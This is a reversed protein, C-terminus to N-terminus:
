RRRNGQLCLLRQNGWERCLGQCHMRPLKAIPSSEGDKVAHYADIEYSTEVVIEALQQQDFEEGCQFCKGIATESDTNDRDAQGILCSGCTRCSIRDLRSIEGPWNLRMLSDMCAKQVKNFTDTEELITEWVENLVKLTEFFDIVMPFSSAIAEKLAGVPEQLHYHELSNRLKQLKRIDVDPWSLEFKKFRGKLQELDITTFGVVEHDVGGVGDPVPEFKAGIVEMPDADPVARILCEKGLLLLGAYYNRAASLMRADPGERFDEIGLVISTVANEFIDM